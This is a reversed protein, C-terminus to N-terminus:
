VKTKRELLIDLPSTKIDLYNIYLLCDDVNSKKLPALTQTILKVM